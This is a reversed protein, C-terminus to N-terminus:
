PRTSDDTSKAPIVPLLISGDLGPGFHLTTTGGFIAPPRDTEDDHEFPGCGRMPNKMNSLTTAEGGYVYDKGRVTLGLRYGVPVVICTPWIEIDLPVVQGPTLPQHEDHTHFPRYPLSKVSDLKRRSARLWGHALPSHPDLAGQFVVEEGNPDFLRLVAFIDTDVTSSSVHLRLSSPGTIETESVFPATMFTVGEGTADYSVARADRVVENGLSTTAPDLHFHTWQTRALPWENELRLEFRDVHRVNLQVRPQTAWGNDAGKLFHDFFRKQLQVGYDTYFPAWHSGGHVELWKQTSAAGVFGEFNGRGHLGHGGWNAASLLPVSM